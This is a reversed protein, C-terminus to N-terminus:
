KKIIKFSNFNKDSKCGSNSVQILSWTYVQGDSFLDAKVQISSESAKIEEKYVLGAAYMNYGKYIRFIFHDAEFFNSRWRFELFDKGTLIVEDTIPYLLRPEPPANFSGEFQGFRIDSAFGSLALCLIFSVVILAIRKKGM